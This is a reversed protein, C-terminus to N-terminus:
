RRGHDRGHGRSHGARMEEESVRGDGNKDLEAFRARAADEYERRDVFGDKNADPFRKAQMEAKRAEHMAEMEAETVFGDKDADAKALFEKHREDIEAVSVKGDGDKDAKSFKGPGALAVGGALAFTVAAAAALRKNMMRLRWQTIMM